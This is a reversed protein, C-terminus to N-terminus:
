PARKRSMRWSGHYMFDSLSKRVRVIMARRSSSPVGTAKGGFRTTSSSGDSIGSAQGRGVTRRRVMLTRLIPGGALSADRAGVCVTVARSRKKCVSSFVAHRTGIHPDIFAPPYVLAVSQARGKKFGLEFWRKRKQRIM